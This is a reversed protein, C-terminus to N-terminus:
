CPDSVVCAAKRFHFTAARLAGEPQKTVEYLQVLSMIRYESEAFDDVPGDTPFLSSTRPVEGLKGSQAAGLDPMKYIVMHQKENGADVAKWRWASKVVGTALTAPFFEEDFWKELTEQSLQSGEKIKFFGQIIGPGTWPTSSPPADSMVLLLLVSLNSFLAWYAIM